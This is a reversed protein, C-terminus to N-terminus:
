DDYVTPDAYPVPDPVGAEKFALKRQKCTGCTGCQKEGGKYCSWTLEIPANSRIAAKVIEVKKMHLLPSLVRFGDDDGSVRLMDEMARLFPYTCDPYANDDQHWGGMVINTGRRCALQAALIIMLANRHPHWSLPRVAVYDSLEQDLDTGPLTLHSTAVRPIDYAFFPVNWYTAIQEAHEVEKEHRQGYRFSVAACPTAPGSADLILGRMGLSLVTTSDLGGSLIVVAKQPTNALEQM